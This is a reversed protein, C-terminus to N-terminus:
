PRACSADPSTYGSRTASSRESAASRIPWHIASAGSDGAASGRVAPSRRRRCTSPDIAVFCLSSACQWCGIRSAAAIIAAARLSPPFTISHPFPPLAASACCMAASNTPTNLWDKMRGPSAAMASVVSVEMRVAPALSKPKSPMKARWTCASPLGPSTSTPILVEPLEAFTRRAKSHARSCPKRVM